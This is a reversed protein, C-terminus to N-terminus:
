PTPSIRRLYGGFIAYWLAFVLVTAIAPQAEPLPWVWIGLLVNAGVLISIVGLTGWPGFRRGLRHTTHDTGGVYVPQGRGLRDVVVFVVDFLPYAVFLSVAAFHPVTVPGTLSQFALAALAFGLFHSGADGLFIKARPANYLLFGAGAGILAWAISQDAPADFLLAIALFGVATIPTVAAVVGDMADLFNIANLLATVGLIAAGMALPNERIADVRPGWLVLCLAAAVQGALKWAPRMPRRDDILGLVLSLAAGLLVGPEPVAAPHREFLRALLPALAVSLAVGVGGLLPTPEPHHKRVGPHDMYGSATALRALIPTLLAALGFALPAVILHAPATIL